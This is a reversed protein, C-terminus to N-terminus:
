TGPYFLRRLQGIGLAALLLPGPKLRLRGNEEVLTGIHRLRAIRQQVMQRPEYGSERGELKRILLEIRRATFAMNFLHFYAYGFCLAALFFYLGPWLGDALGLLGTAFAVAGACLGVGRQGIPGAIWRAAMHLAFCAIPCFLPLLYAM